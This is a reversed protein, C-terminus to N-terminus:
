ARKRKPTLRKKTSVETRHGGAIGLSTDITELITAMAAMKAPDTTRQLVTELVLSAFFMGEEETWSWRANHNFRKPSLHDPDVLVTCPPSTPSPRYTCERVIRDARM